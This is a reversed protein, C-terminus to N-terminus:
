SWAPRVMSVIVWPTCSVVPIVKQGIFVERAMRVMMAACATDARAAGLAASSVAVTVARSCRAAKSRSSSLACSVRMSARMSAMTVASCDMVSEFSVRVLTVRIFSCVM